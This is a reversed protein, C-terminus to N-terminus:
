SSTKGVIASIWTTNHLPEISKTLILRFGCPFHIQLMFEQIPQFNLANEKNEAELIKTSFICFGSSLSSFSVAEMFHFSLPCLEVDGFCSWEVRSRGLRSSLLIEPFEQSRLQEVWGWDALSAWLFGRASISPAAPCLFPFSWGLFGGAPFLM